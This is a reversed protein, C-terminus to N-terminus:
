KLELIDCSQKLTKIKSRIDNLYKEIDEETIEKIHNPIANEEIIQNIEDFKDQIIADIIIM